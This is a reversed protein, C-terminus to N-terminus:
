NVDITRVEVTINKDTFTIPNSDLWGTKNTHLILALGQGPGAATIAPLTIIAPAQDNNIGTYTDTITIVINGMVKKNLGDYVPFDGHGITTTNSLTRLRLLIPEIKRM